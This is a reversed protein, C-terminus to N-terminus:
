QESLAASLEDFKYGSAKKAQHFAKVVAAIKEVRMRRIESEETKKGFARPSDLCLFFPALFLTEEFAEKNFWTIDDFCNVGLIKRFDVTDYNEIILAAAIAVPTKAESYIGASVQNTRALLALVIEAGRRAEDFPVGAKEWCEGLLRDLQWHTVLDAADVGAVSRLLALTNYGLAMLALTPKKEIKEGLSQLFKQSTNKLALLDEFSLSWEKWSTEAFEEEEDAKPKKEPSKPEFPMYKGNGGDLYKKAAAVFANVPEMFSEILQFHSTHASESKPLSFFDALVEFRSTSLIERLPAYLEGLCIDVLTEDLNWVGRGNLEYNLAAWRSEWVGSSAGVVDEREQIDLFVQVEYGNLAAYLGREAIEKSSRIYWLGSRQELFITFFHGEGHLRLAESLSHQKKTGDKQTIAV